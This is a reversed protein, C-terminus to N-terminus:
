AARALIRTKLSHWDEGARPPWMDLERAKAEIGATSRMWDDAARRGKPMALEDAWREGRCWSAPYPLYEKATGAIEWYQVHIPLAELAAFKQSSSMTRWAKEADKKAVKRPYLQWFKEFECSGNIGPKDM